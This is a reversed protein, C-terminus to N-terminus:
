QKRRASIIREKGQLDKSIEIDGYHRESEVLMIITDSQTEGIEIVLYGDPMLWDSADRIIRRYFCLGDKEAVLAERPEHDRLEPELNKWESESVYPPNSVIFDVSGQDIHSIFAGSLDGHLFHVKDVVNHKQANAKAIELAEQSIDSAYIEVNSLNKALSVAINGSGTGIDMITIKRNSYRKDQANELVTEVLIETEPRPILVCENVFFDLSMFEVRHTIYQLPVHRIRENILEKYWSIDADSIIEDPNTYLRTRDCSLVFSLLTDANIGPPDIDAEKLTTIAWKLINRITNRM